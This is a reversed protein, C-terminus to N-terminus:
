RQDILMAIGQSLLRYFLILNLKRQCLLCKYVLYFITLPIHCFLFLHNHRKSHTMWIRELNKELLKQLFQLLALTDGKCMATHWAM